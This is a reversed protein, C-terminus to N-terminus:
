LAVWTGSGDLPRVPCRCAKESRLIRESGPWDAPLRQKRGMAHYPQRRNGDQRAVFRVAQLRVHEAISRWRPHRNGLRSRGNCLQDGSSGTSEGIIEGDVTYYNTVPM